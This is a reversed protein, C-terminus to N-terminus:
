QILEKKNLSSMNEVVQCNDCPLDLLPIRTNVGHVCMSNNFRGDASNIEKIVQAPSIIWLVGDNRGNDNKDYDIGRSISDGNVNNADGEVWSIVDLIAKDTINADSSLDFTMM